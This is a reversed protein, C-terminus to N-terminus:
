EPEVRPEGKPGSPKDKNAAETAQPRARAATVILLLGALMIAILDM